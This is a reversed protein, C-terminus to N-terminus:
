YGTNQKLNTNSTVDSAPLPYINYKNDVSNGDSSSLSGKWAWLYDSTTLKNFRVLDSRRQCEWALERSREDLIDNASVKTIDEANARERVQNFYWTGDHGNVNVSVGGVVQCEALMLYVDALRFIPFDASVFSANVGTGDKRLNTFKMYAYGESFTSLDKIEKNQGTTFFKTGRIDSGTFKNVFQPTVRFGGWGAGGLGLAKYDMKGGCEANVIYTTGGYAQTNIADQYISFIIEHGVGQLEDNSANFMNWYSSQPELNYGLSIINKCAEACKDYQATGTYVKANLYLKALIMYAMGKGCRYKEPSDPLYQVFNNIDKVMWAFLDSRSIQTPNEGGVASNEDTFPVNGYMDIAHLYALARICRAEASLQNKEAETIKDGASNIRRITENCLSVEYMERYYMAGVFVDSSNWCLGHFNKV